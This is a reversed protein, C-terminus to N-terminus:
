SLNRSTILHVFLLQKCDPHLCLRSVGPYIFREGTLRRETAAAANKIRADILLSLSSNLVVRAFTSVANIRSSMSLVMCLNCMIYMLERYTSLSFTVNQRRVTHILQKSSNHTSARVSSHRQRNTRTFWILAFFSLFLNYTATLCVNTYFPDIFRRIMADFVMFNSSNRNPIHGMCSYFNGVVQLFENWRVGILWCHNSMQHSLKFITGIIVFHQATRSSGSLATVAM